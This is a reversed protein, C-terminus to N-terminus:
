AGLWAAKSGLPPSATMTASASCCPTWSGASDGDQTVQSGPSLCVGFRLQRRQPV